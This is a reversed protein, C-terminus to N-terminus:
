LHFQSFFSLNCVCRFGASLLGCYKLSDLFHKFLVMRWSLFFHHRSSELGDQHQVPRWNWEEQLACTKMQSNGLLPRATNYLVQLKQQNQSPLSLCYPEVLLKAALVQSNRLYASNYRRKSCFIEWYSPQMHVEGYTLVWRLKVLHKTFFAEM